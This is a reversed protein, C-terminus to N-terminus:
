TGKLSSFYEELKSFSKTYSQLNNLRILVQRCGYIGWADNHRTFVDYEPVIEQTSNIVLQKDNLSSTILSALKSPEHFFPLISPLQFEVSTIVSAMRAHKPSFENQQLESLLDSSLKKAKGIAKLLSHSILNF